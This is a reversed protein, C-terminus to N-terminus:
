EPAPPLNLIQRAQDRSLAPAAAILVDIRKEVNGALRAAEADAAAARESEERSARVQAPEYADGHEDKKSQYEPLWRAIKAAIVADGGKPDDWVRRLWAEAASTDADQNPDREVVHAVAAIALPSLECQFTGLLEGQDTTFVRTLKM